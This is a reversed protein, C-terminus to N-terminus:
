YTLESLLKETDPIRISKGEIHILKENDLDSLVRIVSEYTTVAIQSIETRTLTHSLKDSNKQEFGFAEVNMALAKIVRQRVTMSTLLRMQRESRKLEEAIFMMFNYCFESNAKLVDQFISLPITYIEADTLAVASVPYVFNEGLGRHGLIQGDTALRLIKEKNKGSGTFVKVKGKKIIHINQVSESEKFILDKKQYSYSSKNQDLLLKWERSCYADILQDVQKLDPHAIKEVELTM